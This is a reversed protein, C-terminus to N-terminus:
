NNEAKLIKLVDGYLARTEETTPERPTPYRPPAVCARCVPVVGPGPSTPYVWYGGAIPRHCRDCTM